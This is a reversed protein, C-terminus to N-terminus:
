RGWVRIRGALGPAPGVAGSSLYRVNARVVSLTSHSNDFAWLTATNDGWGSPNSEGAFGGLIENPFQIPLSVTMTGTADSGGMVWQEILGCPHKVFGADSLLSMGSGGYAIWGAGSSVFESAVGATLQISKSGTGDMANPGSFITPSTVTISTAGAAAQIVIKVGPPFPAPDPLKLVINTTTGVVYKGFDDAGLTTSKAYAVYGRLNGKARLVERDVYQRTALVISPDIRLTVDATNGFLIHVRITQTRGSGQALLPKYSPPPKAVAIFNGKDDELALERIWWGGVEPPLVLEAILVAPDTPSEYLANLQARHVQRVLETQEPDPTPEPTESPGGGADGILMHSINWPLGLAAANAQQAIGVNTLFGGFQTSSNAM